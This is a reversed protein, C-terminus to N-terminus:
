DLMRMQLYWDCNGAIVGGFYIIIGLIGGDVMQEVWMEVDCSRM